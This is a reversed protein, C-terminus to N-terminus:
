AGNWVGAPLDPLTACLEDLEDRGDLGLDAALRELAADRRREVEPEDVRLVSAIDEDELGRRLSLDLLARAEPDLAALARQANRIRVAIV